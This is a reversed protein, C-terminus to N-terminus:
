FNKLFFQTASDISNVESHSRRLKTSRKTSHEKNHSPVILESLFSINKDVTPSFYSLLFSIIRGTRRRSFEESVIMIQILESSSYFVKLSFFSKSDNFISIFNTTGRDLIFDESLSNSVAQSQIKSRNNLFFIIESSLYYQLLQYQAKLFEVM